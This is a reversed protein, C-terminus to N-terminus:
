CISVLRNKLLINPLLSQGFKESVASTEAFISLSTSMANISM